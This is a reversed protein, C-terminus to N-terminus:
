WETENEVDDHPTIQVAADLALSLTTSTRRCFFLTGFCQVKSKVVQFYSLSQAPCFTLERKIFCSFSAFLTSNTANAHALAYRSRQDNLVGFVLVLGLNRPV